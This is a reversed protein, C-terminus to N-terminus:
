VRIWSLFKSLALLILTFFTQEMFRITLVYVCCISCPYPCIFKNSIQFNLNKGVFSELSSCSFTVGNTDSKQSDYLKYDLILYENKQGDDVEACLYRFKKNTYAKVSLVVGAPGFVARSTTVKIGKVLIKLDNTIYWKNRKDIMLSPVCNFQNKAWSLLKQIQIDPKPAM